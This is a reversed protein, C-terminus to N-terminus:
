DVILGGSVAPNAFELSTRGADRGIARIAVPDGIVGEDIKRKAGVYAHDFRRMFGVQFLVGAQHVADLMEDTAQLTLATPKECFIAKRAKAAEIVIEYHTSTPTAIIVGQVQPDHLLERYDAYARVHPIQAKFHDTLETRPDAIAALTA